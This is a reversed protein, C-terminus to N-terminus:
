ANQPAPSKGPTPERRPPKRRPRVPARVQRVATPEERELEAKAAFWFEDSRSDPRGARDWLEYARERVAEEIADM